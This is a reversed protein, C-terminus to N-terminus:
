QQYSSPSWTIAVALGAAFAAAFGATFFAFARLFSFFFMAKPWAWMLDVKLLVMTEM